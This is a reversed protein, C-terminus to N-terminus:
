LSAFFSVAIPVLVTLVIGHFVSIVAYNKGSFKIVAPLTTDMSTAGGSSILAFKGFLKVIFPAFAITFVERFINTILAITALNDNKLEALIISSLSYYGFGSGIAMSESITIEKLFLAAIASGTLTGAVTFLPFIMSRKGAQKIFSLTKKDSGISLGVFFLLVFLIYKIVTDKDIATIANKYFFGLILGLVFATIVAFSGKLPSYKNQKFFEKKKSTKNYQNKFVKKEFILAFIGSGAMGGLALILSIGGIKKLSSILVPNSGVNAGL